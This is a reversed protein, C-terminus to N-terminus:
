RRRSSRTPNLNTGAQRPTRRPESVPWEGGTPGYAQGAHHAVVLITLTVRLADVFYLRATKTRETM